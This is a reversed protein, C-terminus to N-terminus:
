QASRDGRIVSRSIMAAREPPLSGLIAAANRNSLQNLIVQVEFDDMKDLVRAAERPQM